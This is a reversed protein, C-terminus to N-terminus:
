PLLILKASDKSGETARDGLPFIMIRRKDIGAKVILDRIVLARRLATRRTESQGRQDTQAFAQIKLRFNPSNTMRPLIEGTIQREQEPTLSSVNQAYSLVLPKTTEEARLPSFSCICLSLITLSFVSIIRSIKM